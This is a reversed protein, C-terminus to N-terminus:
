AKGKKAKGKAGKAARAKPTPISKDPEAALAKVKPKKSAKTEAEAPEAVPAAEVTKPEEVQDKPQPPPVDKLDPADFEYGMDKFKAARKARKTKEKSVKAKWTSEALPKQLHLGAMKNWPVRKFRRNAGKFLDEHVQEKPITKCKLIHGFLLYNDMTKAVIEATTAEEFEVFAFHKSAGTKKNRSLRVRTVPGFQSLYQRMEHEYFGHPIRGIYLVGPEGTAGHPAKALEKPVSPIKGVDQGPKFSLAKDVPAEDGSDIEAALNRVNDNDEGESDESDDLELVEEEEETQEAEKGAKKPKSVKTSKAAPKEPAAHSKSPKQKKLSIPSADEAAKRKGKPTSKDATKTVSNSKQVESVAKRKRLEPAM